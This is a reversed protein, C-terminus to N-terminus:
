KQCFFAIEECEPMWVARNEPCCPLILKVGRACAHLILSTHVESVTKTLGAAAERGNQSCAGSHEQAGALLLFGGCGSSGLRCGHGSLLGGCILWIINGLLSM